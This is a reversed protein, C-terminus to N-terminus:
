EWREVLQGSEDRTTIRMKEGGSRDLIAARRKEASEIQSPTMSSYNIEPWEDSDTDPAPQRASEFTKQKPSFLTKAFRDKEKFMIYDLDLEHYKESHALEDMDAKAKAIQEDTANPFQERITKTLAGWEGNFIAEQQRQEKEERLTTLETQVEALAKKEEPSADLGKRAVEIIRKVKSEDFDLEKALSKIDDELNESKTESPKAKGMEEKLNELKKDFDAQIEDRLAKKYEKFERPSVQTPEPEGEPEKIPEPAPEQAPEEKAPEAAAPTEPEDAIGLEQKEAQIDDFLKQESASVEEAM